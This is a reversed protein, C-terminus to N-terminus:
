HELFRLLPTEGEGRCIADVGPEKVLDPFFTPHPGGFVSVFDRRRKLERNLGLYYHQRGTWTHYAVVDPRFDDVARGADERDSVCLRVEHGARKLSSSLYLIGLPEYLTLDKVVFLVKRTTM